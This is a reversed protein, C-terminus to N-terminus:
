HTHLISLLISGLVFVGDHERNDAQQSHAVTSLLEHICVSNDNLFRKFSRNM